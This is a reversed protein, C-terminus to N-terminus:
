RREKEDNIQKDRAKKVGERAGINCAEEVAIRLSAPYTKEESISGMQKMLNAIRQLRNELKILDSDDVKIKVIIEQANKESM